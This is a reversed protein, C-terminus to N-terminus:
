KFGYVDGLIKIILLKDKREFLSASGYHKLYTNYDHGLRMCIENVKVDM